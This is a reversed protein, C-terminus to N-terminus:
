SSIDCWRLFLKKASHAEEKSVPIIEGNNEKFLDYNVLDLNHLVIILEVGQQSYGKYLITHKAEDLDAAKKLTWLHRNKIFILYEPCDILDDAKIQKEPHFIRSDGVIELPWDNKLEAQSLLDKSLAEPTFRQDSQVKLIASALALFVKDAQVLNPTHNEKEWEKISETRMHELVIKALVEAARKEMAPRDPIISRVVMETLNHKHKKDKESHRDQTAKTDEFICFDVRRIEDFDTGSISVYKCSIHFPVLENCISDLQQSLVRGIIAEMQSQKSQKKLREIEVPKFEVPYKFFERDNYIKSSFSVDVSYITDPDPQIHLSELKSKIINALKIDDIRTDLSFRCLYKNSDM